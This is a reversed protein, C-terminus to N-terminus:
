PPDILQNLILLGPVLEAAVPHGILESGHRLKVPHILLPLGRHMVVAHISVDALRLPHYSLSM